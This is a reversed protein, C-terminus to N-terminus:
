FNIFEKVAELVENKAEVYSMHGGLITVLPTNTRASEYVISQYNIIPDNKGTIILRKTIKQLVAEKNERLQMGKTAAIYGQVPTKLAENKVKEIELIFQTTSKSTFLNAVSVKILNNYNTKAIKCARSRLEKREKTDAQATSNLLCLGKIHKPYKEAFALSVYGGMSHGIIIYKRLRLSKLVEKVALAMDNMTHVYGICESNGHGLLDICIVRNKTSLEASINSWMTSNELFGHLLVIANGKGVDSFAIRSNKYVIFDQM